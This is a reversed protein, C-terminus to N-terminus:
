KNHCVKIFANSLNIYLCCLCYFGYSLYAQFHLDSVKISKFLLFPLKWYVFNLSLCFLEVLRFLIEFTTFNYIRTCYALLFIAFHVVVKIRIKATPCDTIKIFGLAKWYYLGSKKVIKRAFSTSFVIKM